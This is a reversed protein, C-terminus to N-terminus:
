PQGVIVCLESQRTVRAGPDQACPRYPAEYELVVTAQKRRFRVRAALLLVVPRAMLSVDIWGRCRASDECRCEKRESCRRWVHLTWRGRFRGSRGPALTGADRRESRGVGEGREVEVGGPDGCAFGAVHLWVICDPGLIIEQGVELGLVGADGGHAADKDTRGISAVAGVLKAHLLLWVGVVQGGEVQVCRPERNQPPFSCVRSGRPQRIRRGFRALASAPPVTQTASSAVVRCAPLPRTEFDSAIDSVRRPAPISAEPSLSFLRVSRGPNRRRTGSVTVARGCDRM